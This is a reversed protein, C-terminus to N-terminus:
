QQRKYVDGRFPQFLDIDLNRLDVARAQEKGSVIIVKILEPQLDQTQGLHVEKGTKRGLHTYSVARLPSVASNARHTNCVPAGTVARLKRSRQRGM